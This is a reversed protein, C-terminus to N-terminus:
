AAAGGDGRRRGPARGEQGREDHGAGPGLHEPRPDQGRGPGQRLEEACRRRLHALGPVTDREAPEDPRRPLGLRGRAARPAQGGRAQAGEDGRRPGVGSLKKGAVTIDFTKGTDTKAADASEAKGADSTGDAAEAEGKAADAKGKKAQRKAKAADARVKVAEAKVKAAEATAKTVDAMVADLAKMADEIGKPSTALNGAATAAQKLSEAQPSKAAALKRIAAMVQRYQAKAKKLAPSDPVPPKKGSEEAAKRKADAEFRVVNEKLWDLQKKVDDAQRRTGESEFEDIRGGFDEVVETLWDGRKNGPDDGIAKRGRTELAKLRKRERAALKGADPVVGDPPAEDKASAGGDKASGRGSSAEEAADAEFRRVSDELWDLHKQVNGIYPETGHKELSAFRGESNAVVEALWGANPNRPNAAIAKQGRAELAKLRKRAEEALKKGDAQPAAEDAGGKGAAAEFRKVSDELWDLHKQVDSIYPETGYKELAAFRGESNAVVEALWGANPNRPNAAIAKQGRADLAKLRKRAEEALKKGDSQPAAEDAGRKGADAKDLKAKLDALQKVVKDLAANAAVIGKPSTSLNGAAITALKLAAAGPVKGAELAKIRGMVEQFRAILSAMEPSKPRADPKTATPPTNVGGGATMASTPKLGLKELLLGM